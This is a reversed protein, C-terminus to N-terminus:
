PRSKAPFLALAKLCRERHASGSAPGLRQGPLALMYREGGHDADVVWRCLRSLRAETPLSALSDWDFCHEARRPEAFEKIVPVGRVSTRKWHIRQIPDGRRYDRLGAFDEDGVGARMVGGAAEAAPEPPRAGSEPLPYVLYAADLSVWSWAEFLGLPFRTSVTFAPAPLYGRALGALPLLLEVTGGPALDAHVRTGPGAPALALAFRALPTPNDLRIRLYAIDGVFVPAAGLATVRLRLLNRHAHHMAVLGLGVLLFTLAFALNNSYNMAGLLMAFMLAAYVAGARTPLIYIRRRHLTAPGSERRVRRLLWRRAHGRLATDAPTATASSGPM